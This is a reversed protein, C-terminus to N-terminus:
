QGLRGRIDAIWMAAQDDSPVTTMYAEYNELACDLDALYLDCLIGLNRRAHHYGPYVALASEYSKRAEAFRGTKRYVIGLENLAIPHDPNLELAASLNEEAAALDGIAHYAIGMEIRPASLDPARSAVDQLMALGEEHQARELYGLAEIYETRVNSDVPVLETITFGVEDQVDITAAPRSSTDTTACAGLMMLPVLAASRALWQNLSCFKIIM